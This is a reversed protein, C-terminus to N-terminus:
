ESRESARVLGYRECFAGRRAQTGAQLTAQVCGPTGVPYARYYSVTGASYFVQRLTPNILTKFAIVTGPLNNGASDQVGALTLTYSTNPLLPQSPNVVIANSAAVPRLLGRCSHVVYRVVYNELCLPM